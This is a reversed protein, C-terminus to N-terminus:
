STIIKIFKNEQVNWCFHKKIINHYFLPDKKNSSLTDIEEELVNNSETYIIKGIQYKNFLDPLIQM